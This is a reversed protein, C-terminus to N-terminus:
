ITSLARGAAECRTRYLVASALMVLITAFALCYRWSAAPLPSSLVIQGRIEGGPFSMTHINIYCNGALLQTVQAPAVSIVENIPNEGMGPFPLIVPGNVGPAGQHIHADTVQSNPIDHTVAETIQTQAPNLTVTGSGTFTSPTPAQAGDLSVNFVTQGHAFAAVILCCAPFALTSM